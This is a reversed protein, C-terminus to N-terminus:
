GDPDLVILVLTGKEAGSSLVGTQSDVSFFFRKEQRMRYSKHSLLAMFGRMSYERTHRLLHTPPAQASYAISSHAECVWTCPYKDTQIRILLYWRVKPVYIEM